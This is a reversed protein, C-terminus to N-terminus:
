PPVELTFMLLLITGCGQQPCGGAGPCVSTGAHPVRKAIGTKKKDHETEETGM